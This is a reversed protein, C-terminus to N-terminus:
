WRKAINFQAGGGGGERGVGWVVAVAELVVVSQCLYEYYVSVSLCLM